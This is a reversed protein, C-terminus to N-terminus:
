APEYFLVDFVVGSVFIITLMYRHACNVIDPLIHAIIKKHMQQSSLSLFSCKGEIIMILILVPRDHQPMPM